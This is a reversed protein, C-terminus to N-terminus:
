TSRTPRRCSATRRRLSRVFPQHPLRRIRRDRGPLRRAGRGRHFASRFLTQRHRGHRGQGDGADVTPPTPPTPGGRGGRATVGDLHGVHRGPRRGHRGLHHERRPRGPGPKLDFRRSPGLSSFFSITDYKTSSGSRSQPRSAPHASASSGPRIGAAVACVVGAETLPGRRRSRITRVGSSGLSLNVVQMADDTGPNQDPDLARELRAMVWSEFGSGDQNLVKFAYLTAQTAVGEVVGGGSGAVIGAVHTGHGHDDLPDPDDNVFDYGGAVRHGPGFGNGFAPHTYDIGTDIIGVRIGAGTGGLENRVRDAGILPVSEDLVARVSDDPVVRRVYDLSRVRDLLAPAITVAAGSFVQTYGLTVRALPPVSSGPSARPRPAPGPEAGLSADMGLRRATVAPAARFEVIVRLTRESGRNALAGHGDPGVV